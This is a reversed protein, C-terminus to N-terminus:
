CGCSGKDSHRRKRFFSVAAMVGAMVNGMAPSNCALRGLAQQMLNAPSLACQVDDWDELLHEENTRKMRCIKHREKQVEGITRM